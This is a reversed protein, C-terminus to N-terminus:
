AGLTFNTLLPAILGQVLHGAADRVQKNAIVIAADAIVDVLADAVGLGTVHVKVNKLEDMEFQTIDLKGASNLALTMNLDINGIDAKIGLDPHILGGLLEVHVKNYALHINQDGIRLHAVFHESETGITANGARHLTSLGTLTGNSLKVDGKITIIGVKQNIKIDEDPLHFPDLQAGYQAKVATLVSDIFENANGTDDAFLNSMLGCFLLVSLLMIHM